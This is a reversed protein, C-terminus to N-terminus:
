AYIGPVEATSFLSMPVTHKLSILVLDTMGNLRISSLSLLVPLLPQMFPKCYLLKDIILMTQQKGLQGSVMSFETIQVLKDDITPYASFPLVHQTLHTMQKLICLTLLM